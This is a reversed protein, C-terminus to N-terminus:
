CWWLPWICRETATRAGGENNAKKDEMYFHSAVALGTVKVSISQNKKEDFETSSNTEISNSTEIRWISIALM